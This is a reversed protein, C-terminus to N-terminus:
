AMGRRWKASAINIVKVGENVTTSKGRYARDSRRRGVSITKARWAAAKNSEKKRRWKNVSTEFSARYLFLARWAPM